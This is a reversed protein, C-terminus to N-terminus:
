TISGIKPNLDNKCCTSSVVKSLLVSSITLFAKLSVFGNNGDILTSM